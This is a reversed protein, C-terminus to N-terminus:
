LLFTETHVDFDVDERRVGDLAHVVDYKLSEPGCVFVGVRRQPTCSCDDSKSGIREDIVQNFFRSFDPRGIEYEPLGLRAVAADGDSLRQAPDISGGVEAEEEPALPESHRRAMGSRQAESLTVHLHLRFEFNPLQSQGLSHFLNAFWELRRPDNVIWLLYIVNRSSLHDDKQEEARLAAQQLAYQLIAACPTVGIGGAVLVCEEYDEIDIGMKGYPGDVLISPLADQHSYTLALRRLQYTWSQERESGMSKIHFTFEGDAPSSSITFPHWQLPSIAPICVFAYQGAEFKFGDQRVHLRTVGGLLSQMSIIESSTFRGRFLRVFRDVAYFMFGVWMYHLLRGEVESTHLIAFVFFLIYFHHAYFFVEFYLRRVTPYATIFIILGCIFAFEGWLIGDYGAAEMSFICEILVGARAWVAWWLVLHVFMVIGVVRALYRHYQVMREFSLGFLFSWLSYRSVPLILMGINLELVHGLMRAWVELKTPVSLRSENEFYLVAWYVNFLGYLCILFLEGVSLTPNNLLWRLGAPSVRKHLLYLVSRARVDYFFFFLCLIILAVYFLVVDSTTLEMQDEETAYALSAAVGISVLMVLFLFLRHIRSSSSVFPLPAGMAQLGMLSLVVFAGALGIAGWVITRSPVKEGECTALDISFKDYNKGHFDLSGPQGVSWAYVFDMNGRVIQADYRSTAQLSRRFSVTVRKGDASTKVDWSLISSKDNPLLQSLPTPVDTRFSFYPSVSAPTNGSAPWGLVMPVNTMGHGFGLASYGTGPLTFTFDIFTNEHAPAFSWTMKFNGKPRSVSCTGAPEPPIPQSHNGLDVNLANFNSYHFGFAGPGDSSSWAYIMDTPKPGVVVDYQDRTNLRRRFRITSTQQACDRWAWVPEIDNTGGLVVDEKPRTEKFSYYDGVWFPLGEATPPPAVQGSCNLMTSQNYYVMGVVLDAGVMSKGFGIGIWSSGAMTYQVELYTGDINWALQFNGKPDSVSFPLVSLTNRFDIIVNHHNNFHFSIDNSPADSAWAYVLPMSKGPVLVSDFVDSTNLKRRFRVTTSTQTGVVSVVEIDNKGGM